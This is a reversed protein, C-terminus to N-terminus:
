DDTPGQEEATTEIVEFEVDPIADGSPLLGVPTLAATVLQKADQSNLHIIVTPPKAGDETEHKPPEALKFYPKLVTDLLRPDAEGAQIQQHCLALADAHLQMAQASQAALAAQLFGRGRTRMEQFYAVFEPAQELRWIDRSTVARRRFGKAAVQRRITTPGLRRRRAVAKAPSVLEAEPQDALWRAYDQMWPQLTGGDGLSATPGGHARLTEPRVPLDSARAAGGSTHEPM